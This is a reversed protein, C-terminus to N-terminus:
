ITQKLQKLFNVKGKKILNFEDFYKPIFCECYSNIAETFGSIDSEADYGFYEYLMANDM